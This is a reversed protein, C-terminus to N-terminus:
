VPQYCEAWLEGIQVDDFNLRVYGESSFSLIAPPDLLVNRLDPPVWVLLRCQNDTVWGNSDIEWLVLTRLAPALPQM